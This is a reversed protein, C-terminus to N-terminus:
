EFLSMQTPATVQSEYIAIEDGNHLVQQFSGSIGNVTLIVNGKINDFDLKSYQLMDMLYYPINDEKLPLHLPSGNLTVHFDTPLAAPDASAEPSTWAALDASAESDAQPQTSFPSNLEPMAKIVYPVEAAEPKDTHNPVEQRSEMIETNKVSKKTQRKVPNGATGKARSKVPKKVPSATPPEASAKGKSIEKDIDDPEKAEAKGTGEMLLPETSSHFLIIDGNKLETEMSAKKGNLKIGVAGTIGPIEKLYAKAAKGSCAPTFLISDGAHVIDSLKGEKQNIYLQAPTQHTGYFVIRKGNVTVVLNQGSKGIMDQYGFGNMMLIDRITFTGSRFLKAQSGNLKVYFSDSIMNLGASIAIGLPTAYEPNNLDYLDSCANLLFNSGAIAVRKPDMELYKVIGELLGKLKSGGGALFVASPKGGNVELIKESIERCLLSETEGIVEMIQEKTIIQEIGLIDTFQLQEKSSLESKIREATQFDVLYEKMLRETIEDGAVTAMTYGIISGDRCVAIDSTGAGIDVLALNLLRLNEPIAANIAAIPELTLSAIELDIKKMAMYLSDVVESPLFTAIIDVKLTKGKHDKLSSILYNDLYYQTVTHGVLYFNKRSEGELLGGDFTEEAKSIAGAELQSIIEEDIHRVESFELEYSAKQTKLARGAAAVCVRHLTLNLKKELKEKVQGAIRSVQDIDEIQGDIMARKMHEAQEIAVIHIKDNEKIGVIGIISRTGIDLAFVVDSAPVVENIWHTETM